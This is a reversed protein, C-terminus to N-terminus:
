FRLTICSDIEKQSLHVIKCTQPEYFVLKPKGDSAAVLAINIAHGGYPADKMYHFEGFALGTGKERGATKHHLISAYAASVRAFDDCDFEEATWEQLGLQFKLTNLADSFTGGIWPESPSVYKRDTPFWGTSPHVGLDSIAIQLDDSDFM